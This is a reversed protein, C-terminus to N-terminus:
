EIGVVSTTPIIQIFTNGDNLVIEEGNEYTYRTKGSRSDKVWTIPKYFGNTIFYGSGSGVTDLDQRGERDLTFNRVQEIIINKYHYQSNTVGDSHAVQNMNRLYYKNESDYTYSRSQAYSYPIYVSNAVSAPSGETNIDLEDISYKFLQWNDTETSYGKRKAEGKLKDIATFVNHPAVASSDRWYPSSDVMGNINNVGLYPIDKEAYPSWGFHAYISDSELAYDLFYHRSSRVPGIKEVNRDKYIAMMRTLGGEVIVEYTIYAEQLGVHKASGINNDIMIAIPREKSDEDVIQLKKVEPKVEEKVEEKVVEEKKEEKPLFLIMVVFFVLVLFLCIIGILYKQKKTLKKNKKKKRPHEEIDFNM